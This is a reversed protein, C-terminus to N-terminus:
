QRQQQQSKKNTQRRMEFANFKKIQPYLQLYGRSKSCSAHWKTGFFFFIINSSYLVFFCLVCLSINEGFFFFTCFFVVGNIAIVSARLNLHIKLIWSSFRKFCCFFCFCFWYSLCFFCGSNWKTQRKLDQRKPITNSQLQTQNYRRRLM